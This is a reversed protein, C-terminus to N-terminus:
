KKKPKRPGWLRAARDTTFKEGKESKIKELEVRADPWTPYDIVDRWIQKALAYQGVAFDVSARGKRKAATAASKMGKGSAALHEKALAIIARKQMPDATSIGAKVDKVIGARGKPREGCLRNLAAVFDEKMGGKRSRAKPDALLFPFVFKVVTGPRTLKELDARSVSDKKGDLEVIIRCGDQQLLERQVAV